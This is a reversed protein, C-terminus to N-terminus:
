KKKPVILNPEFDNSDAVPSSKAAGVKREIEDLTDTPEVKEKVSKLVALDAEETAKDEEENTAKPTIVTAVTDNAPMVPAAENMNSSYGSFRRSIEKKNRMWRQLLRVAVIMLIVLLAIVIYLLYNPRKKLKVNFEQAQNAVDSVAIEKTASGLVKSSASIKHKGPTIGVFSAVGLANTTAEQSDIKVVVGPAPQGKEDLITIALIGTIQPQSSGPDPSPQEAATPASNNNSPTSSTSKPASGGSPTTKTGGSSSGSSGSSSGGSSGGGGGSTGGGGGGGTPPPPTAPNVFTFSGATQTGTWVNLGDQDSLESDSAFTLSSTNGSGVLVKFAVNGVLLGSGSATSGPTTYCILNATGNGISKVACGGNFPSGDNNISTAQLKNQDYNLKVNYAILTKGNSNAYIGVNFSTDKTRSGSSPSIYLESPGTAAKSFALFYVGVVAVLAAVLLAPLAKFTKHQKPLKTKKM